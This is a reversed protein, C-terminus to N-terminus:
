EDEKVDLYCDWLNIGIKEFAKKIKKKFKLEDTFRVESLPIDISTEKNYDFKIILKM